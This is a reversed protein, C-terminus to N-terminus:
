PQPPGSSVVSKGHRPNIHIAGITAGVRAARRQGRTITYRQKLANIDALDFLQLGAEEVRWPMRRGRPFRAAQLLYKCLTPRAASTTMMMPASTSDSHGFQKRRNAKTGASPGDGLIENKGASNPRQRLPTRRELT